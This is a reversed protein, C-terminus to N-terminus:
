SQSGRNDEYCRYVGPCPLQTERARSIRNLGDM